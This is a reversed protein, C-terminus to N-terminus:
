PEPSLTGPEPNPTLTLTLALTRPGCTSMSYSSTHPVCQASRWTAFGTLALTLTQTLTLTLTRMVTLTLTLTLTLTRTLTLTATPRNIPYSPEAPLSAVGILRVQPDLAARGALVAELTRGRPLLVSCM